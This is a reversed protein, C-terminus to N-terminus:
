LVIKVCKLVDTNNGFSKRIVEFDCGFSKWISRWTIELDSGFLFFCFVFCLRVTNWIHFTIILYLIYM